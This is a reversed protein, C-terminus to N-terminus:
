ATRGSTIAKNFITNLYFGNRLHVYLRRVPQHRSLRPLMVQAVAVLLFVLVIWLASRPEPQVITKAATELVFWAAGFSIVVLVSRNPLLQALAIFFVATLPEFLMAAVVGVALVIWPTARLSHITPENVVTGSSLFAHAKYLSHAVLHLLALHYAGLGLELMMFGMQAVTSFALSRKISAQTLMVVSGFVATIAGVSALIALAVESQAIFPHLRLVLIGGANVIGAHMLASVPTATEMTDPLWTHFPFQASKLLAAAVLLCAVWDINAPVSAQRMAEFEWSGFTRYTLILAGLMCADGLRSVIFKKRAALIAGARDRYLTLLQHLGLSTACWAVAFVLLGQALVLALIAASTVTLWAYYRTRLAEGAMYRRSYHFVIGILFTTLVLLVTTM